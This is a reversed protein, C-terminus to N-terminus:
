KRTHKEHLLHVIGDVLGLNPVVIEEADSWKLVNLYIRAAPVIVDARDEKLGYKKIREEVTLSELNQLTDKIEGYSLPKGEKKSLLRSIKNINGGTGIGTVPRHERTNEKIWFKLQDWDSESVKHYLIRITGIPFSNSAVPKGKSFLTLETSGGGVDVYLYSRDRNLIDAVHIAYIVEAERKGGILQVSIDAEKKIKELVEANNRSERMASTACAMYEKVQCVDMLNRFASMTKVLLASKKESIRQETFADEGLRIPVRILMLKKFDPGKGNVTVDSILLRVANSGIDIAAFRM